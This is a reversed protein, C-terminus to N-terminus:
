KKMLPTIWLFPKGREDVRVEHELRANFLTQSLVKGYFTRKPPFSVNTTAPDIEKLELWPRDYLVPTGLRSELAQLVEQIPTDEIEIELFDFLKPVAERVPQRPKWGIPWAEPVSGAATVVLQSRGQSGSVPVVVLDLPHLLAALATGSSLGQLEAKVQGESLISRVTPSIRLGLSIQRTIDRFVKHANKGRTSEAVVPKLADQVKLLQDRKLGFRDLEKSATDPKPARQQEIWNKLASQQRLSFRKGPVLLENQSNIIATIHVSSASRQVSPKANQQNASRVRVSKLRSLARVWDHAATVPARSSPVVNLEVVTTAGLVGRAVLCFTLM